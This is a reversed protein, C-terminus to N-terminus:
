ESVGTFRDAGMAMAQAVLAQVAPHEMINALAYAHALQPHEKGGTEMDMRGVGWHHLYMGAVQIVGWSRTDGLDGHLLPMLTETQESLYDLIRAVENLTEPKM